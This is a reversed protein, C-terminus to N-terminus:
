DYGLEGIYEYMVNKVSQREKELSQLDELVQAVDIPEEDEFIDVYRPVNLNYDNEKIEGLDVVSCYKEVNKFNNFATVIKKVDEDRLFNQAKGELYDNAAYIFLVKGILVIKRM